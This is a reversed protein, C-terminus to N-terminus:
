FHRKITRHWRNGPLEPHLIAMSTSYKSIRSPRVGQRWLWRDIPSATGVSKTELVLRDLTVDRGDRAVCVLDADVTVRSRSTEELLTTRAFASTLTPVLDDLVSHDTVVGRVQALMAPTLEDGADHPFRHKVTHGRTGKVKVEVMADGSDLYRRIRVKYRGRRRTASLRYLHFDVTDFYVTQYGFSRRGGEQLVRLNPALEDIMREVLGVEVVYKRDVRHLLEATDNLEDLQVTTLGATMTELAASASSVDASPDTM